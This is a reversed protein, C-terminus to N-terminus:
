ALFVDPLDDFLMRLDVLKIRLPVGALIIIIWEVKGCVFFFDLKM